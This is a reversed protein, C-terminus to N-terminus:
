SSKKSLLPSALSLRYMDVATTLGRAVLQRKKPNMLAVRDVRNNLNAVEVLVSIPIKSYRLIAPLTREGNRYYYSRVAKRPSVGLKHRKFGQIIRQAFAKSHDQAQRNERQRFRILTPVAEKRIRYVRGRPKFENVRLRHDPYYVMAGQLSPVLADGHISILIVNEPPVGRAILKRYLANVLFVRMNVAVKSSSMIYPPNTMVQEKGMKRTSLKATPNPQRPDHVVPHVKYGKAELLRGFRIAIDYVMEHEFVHDKSGKRGYVAGPDSGGHGADVIVHMPHTRLRKPPSARPPLLPKPRSDPKVAMRNEVYDESLWEVPIKLARGARLKKPGSLGNIKALLKSMRNIEEARERDTFRILLSYLTENPKPTYLAFIRGSKEKLLKLPGKVRNPHFGLSEPVWRLPIVIETGTRLIDPNKLRNYKALEKFYAKSGTYVETLQILNELPDVVQHSWGRETLEDEPYLARLSIGRLPIKLATLPFAIPRGSRVPRNKNFAQITPYDLPSEMLRKAMQIYGENARPMVEVVIQAKWWYAEMTGQPTAFKVALATTGWVGICAWMLGIAITRIVTPSGSIRRRM